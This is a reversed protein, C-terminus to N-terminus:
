LEFASGLAGRPPIIEIRSLIPALDPEQGLLQAIHECRNCEASVHALFVKRIRRKDVGKLISIADANSLHGNPCAIRTKLRYPRPSAELMVPCYNSELVLVSARSVADAVEPTPRGFDTAWVLNEDGIKFSYGVCDNTDHPVAFPTVSWAGFDISEGNRFIKWRLRKTEPYLYRVSEATDRNAYVCLKESGKLRALSKCHDSHEHTIFVADVDGLDVGRGKLYASVKRVGVGADILVHMGGCNLYACNGASSTEIVQFFM